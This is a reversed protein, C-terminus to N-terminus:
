QGNRVLNHYEIISLQRVFGAGYAESGVWRQYDLGNAALGIIRLTLSYRDVFQIREAQMEHFYKVPDLRAIKRSKTMQIQNLSQYSVM